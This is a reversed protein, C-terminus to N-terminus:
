ILNIKFLQFLADAFGLRSRWVPTAPGATSRSCRLTKMVCFIGRNSFAKAPSQPRIRNWRDRAIRCWSYFVVCFNLGFSVLKLTNVPLISCLASSCKQICRKAVNSASLPLVACSNLYSIFKWSSRLTRKKSKLYSCEVFQALPAGNFNWSCKGTVERAQLKDAYSQALAAVEQPLFISVILVVANVKIVTGIELNPLNKLQRHANLSEM